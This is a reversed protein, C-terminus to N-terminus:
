VASKKSTCAGAVQCVACGGKTGCGNAANETGCGPGCGHELLRAFQSRAVSRQYVKVLADMRRQVIEDVAGLFHFFLTQGDLLPEVELLTAEIRQDCLWQRCEDRAIRSLYELQGWLLEDAPTMRRLIWGDAIIQGDRVPLAVPYLVQGVELGRPSRCVVRSGRSITGLEEIRFRGIGPM